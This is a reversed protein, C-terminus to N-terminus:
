SVNSHGAIETAAAYFFDEPSGILGYFINYLSFTM